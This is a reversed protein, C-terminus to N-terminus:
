PIETIWFSTEFSFKETSIHRFHTKKIKIFFKFFELRQAGDGSKKAEPLKPSQKWVGLKRVKLAQVFFAGLFFQGL